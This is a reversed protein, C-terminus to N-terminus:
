NISLRWEKLLILGKEIGLVLIENGIEISEMLNKAVNSFYLPIFNSLFSSGLNKSYICKNKSLAASFVFIGFGYKFLILSHLV